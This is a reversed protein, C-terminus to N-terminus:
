GGRCEEIVRNVESYVPVILPAHGSVEVLFRGRSYAIQDWLADRAPLTWMASTGAAAVRREGYSTRITIAPSSAGAGSRGIAIMTGLCALTLEGHGTPNSFSAMEAGNAGGYQWEGPSLDDVSWDGAYHDAIPAPVLHPNAAPAPPPATAVPARPAVCSAILPLITFPLIHRLM